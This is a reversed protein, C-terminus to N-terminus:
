KKTALLIAKFKPPSHSITVLFTQDIYDHCIDFDLLLNKFENFFM